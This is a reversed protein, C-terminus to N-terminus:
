NNKAKSLYIRPVRKSIKCLVEYPITEAWQAVDHASIEEQGDKGILTVPDGWRVPMRKIDVIIMDMTVRGLIPCRKGHILVEGRNSLKRFIGDAYGASLIAIRTRTRTRYTSGYSISTGAPVERILVVRTKWSLIPTLSHDGFHQQWAHPPTPVGYLALGPRVYRIWSPIRIRVTGASNQIHIPPVWIGRQIAGKYFSHLKEMQQISNSLHTPASALHSYLGVPTIWSSRNARKLLSLIEEPFGGLRGMGTDLKLHIHIKKKHRTGIKQLMEFEKWNSITPIWRSHHIIETMEDPLLPSALLIEARPAARSVIEAETINTVAFTRVKQQALAQTIQFVGHGYADSKVVAIVDCSPPLLSRIRKLNSTLVSLNIEAWCRLSKVISEQTDYGAFFIMKYTNRIEM